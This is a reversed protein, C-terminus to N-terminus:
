SQKIKPAPVFQNKIAAIQDRLTQAIERYQSVDVGATEAADIVPIAASLDADAANLREIDQDNLIPQKTVPHLM